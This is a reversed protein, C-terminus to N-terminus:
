SRAWPKPSSAFPTLSIVAVVEAGDRPALSALRSPRLQQGDKSARANRPRRLIVVIEMDGSRVKMRVSTVPTAAELAEAAGPAVGTAALGLGAGELFRRRDVKVMEGEKM